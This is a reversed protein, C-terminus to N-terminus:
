AHSNGGISPSLTLLIKLNKIKYAFRVEKVKHDELLLERSFYDRTLTVPLNKHLLSVLTGKIFFVQPAM